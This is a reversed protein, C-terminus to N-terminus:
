ITLSKVIQNAMERLLPTYSGINTKHYFVPESIRWVEKGTKTEYLVAENLTVSDPRFTMPAADLFEGLVLQLCYDANLHKAELLAEDKSAIKTHTFAPNTTQIGEFATGSLAKIVDDMLLKGSGEGKAHPVGNQVVDRPPLVLIRGSQYDTMKKGPFSACGASFLMLLVVIVAAGRSGSVGKIGCGSELVRMM